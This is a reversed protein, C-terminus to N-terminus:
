INGDKAELKLTRVIRARSIAKQVKQLIEENAIHQGDLERSEEVCSHRPMMDELKSSLFVSIM